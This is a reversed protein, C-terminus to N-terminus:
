SPGSCIGPIARAQVAHWAQGYVRRQELHRDTSVFRTLFSFFFSSILASLGCSVQMPQIAWSVPSEILQAYPYPYSHFSKRYEGGNGEAWVTSAPFKSGANSDNHRPRTIWAENNPMAHGMFNRPDTPGTLKVKEMASDKGNIYAGYHHNYAWTLPVSVDGKPTRQVQDTEMGTVAMVKGDFRDIIDQPIPVNAMM